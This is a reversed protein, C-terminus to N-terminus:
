ERLVSLVFVSPRISPRAPRRKPPRAHIAGFDIPRRRCSWGRVLAFLLGVSIREGFAGAWDDALNWLRCFATAGGRRKALRLLLRRGVLDNFRVAPCVTAVSRRALNKFGPGVPREDTRRRALASVFTQRPDSSNVGLCDRPKPRARPCVVVLRGAPQRRRVDVSM